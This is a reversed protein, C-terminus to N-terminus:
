AEKTYYLNLAGVEFILVVPIEKSRKTSTHLPGIWWCTVFAEEESEHNTQCLHFITNNGNRFCICEEPDSIRGILNKVHPVLEKDELAYKRIKDAASRAHVDIIYGEQVIFRADLKRYYDCLKKLLQSEAM